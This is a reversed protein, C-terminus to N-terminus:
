ERRKTPYNNVLLTRHPWSVWSFSDYSQFFPLNFLMHPLKRCKILFYIQKNYFSRLFQTQPLFESSISPWILLAIRVSKRLLKDLKYELNTQPWMISNCKHLSSNIRIRYTSVCQDESILDGLQKCNHSVIVRQRNKSRPDEGWQIIAWDTLFSQYACLFM